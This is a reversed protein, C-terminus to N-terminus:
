EAPLDTPKKKPKPGPKRRPPKEETKPEEAQKPQTDKDKSKEGMSLDIMAEEPKRLRDGDQDTKKHMVEILSDMTVLMNRGNSLTENSMHKLIDGGRNELELLKKYDILFCAKVPIYVLRDDTERLVFVKQLRGDIRLTKM